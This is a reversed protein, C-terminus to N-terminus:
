KVSYGQKNEPSFESGQGTPQGQWLKDEKVSEAKPKITVMGYREDVWFDYDESNGVMDTKLPTNPAFENQPRIRYKFVGKISINGLSDISDKYDVENSLKEIEIVDGRTPIDFSQVMHTGNDLRSFNKYVESVDRDKTAFHYVLAVGVLSFTGLTYAGVHKEFHNTINDFGKSAKEQWKPVHLRLYSIINLKDYKYEFENVKNILKLKKESYTSM